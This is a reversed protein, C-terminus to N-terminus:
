LKRFHIVPDRPCVEVDQEVIEFGAAVFANCAREVGWHYWGFGGDTGNWLNQESTKSVPELDMKPRFYRWSFNFGLKTPLWVKRKQANLFRGISLTDSNARCEEYKDFDAIMLFGQGGKKIKLALSKVYEECMEPKLHCFVGFSFFYDISNDPVKTLLFDQVVIYEVRPDPGIYDWFHTHSPDAADVAYVKLCDSTVFTKTWAGRGPGIELVTTNPTMYPRICVRYITYLISNYGYVGYTSGGMPDLPNGEFFGGPWAQTFKRLFEM